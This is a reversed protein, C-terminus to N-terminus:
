NLPATRWNEVLAVVKQRDLMMSTLTIFLLGRAQEDDLDKVARQLEPWGHQIGRALVQEVWSIHDEIIPDLKDDM